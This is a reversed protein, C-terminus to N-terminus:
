RGGGALRRRLRTAIRILWRGAARGRVMHYIAHTAPRSRSGECSHEALTTIKAEREAVQEKLEAVQITLATIRTAREANGAALAAKEAATRSIADELSAIKEELSAVKSEFAAQQDLLQHIGFTVRADGCARTLDDFSTRYDKAPAGGDRLEVWRSWGSFTEVVVPDAAVKRRKLDDPVIVPDPRDLSKVIEDYNHHLVRNTPDLNTILLTGTPATNMPILILDPRYELLVPYVRFVDGTWAGTRRVRFAELDNRPLVDDLVVVTGPSSYREINMFDRLVFESLHMGDIFALDISTDGFHESPASTRFYEDSTSRIATLDCSLPEMIAFAPDIAITRTRSLTLSAGVDVGIEFYTRPKLVEHLRALLEHRTRRPLPFPTAQDGTVYQIETQSAAYVADLAGLRAMQEARATPDTATALLTANPRLTEAM